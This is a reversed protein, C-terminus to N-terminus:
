YMGSKRFVEPSLGYTKRFLMCFYSTDNFGCRSAVEKVALMSGGLLYAASRLRMNRLFIAPSEGRFAKFTRSFHYRSLGAAAAMDDVGIDESLHKLCFSEVDAVFRPKDFVRSGPMRESLLAMAFRYAMASNAFPEDLMGAAAASSIDLALKVAPSSEDFKMCCGAFSQLHRLLRVAEHGYLCIYIFEWADSDEPLYYCHEHPIRLFMANGPTQPYENGDYRLMGRGSLTLQWLFFESAGRRTGDWVYQDGSVKRDYGCSSIMVHLPLKRELSAFSVTRGGKRRAKM